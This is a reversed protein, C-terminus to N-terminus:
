KNKNIWSQLMLICWIQNELVNQGKLFQSWKKRVEKSNLFGQEQIRKKDLLNEAWERLPGRLFSGIPLNFGMKKNTVYENPLYKKLLKKLIWKRENDRIKYDTPLNICHEILNHDLYPTRVELGVSMSARDVKTLIDDPLYSKIDYYIFEETLNDFKINDPHILNQNSHNLLINEEKSFTRLLKYFELSNKADLSSLIKYIQNQHEANSKKFKLLQYLKLFIFKSKDNSITKRLSYPINKLFSWIKPGFLYRQYGGFMEDGGDGSLCVKVQKKALQSVMLTPIQSADAFPEDYVEPIKPIIEQIQNTEIYLHEHDTGLHKAIKNAKPAEDYHEDINGISFTKIKKESVSQMLAVIYSSDIGGSLFAGVPVDALMKLNVSNIILKEVNDLIEIQSLSSPSNKNKYFENVDWYCMPDSISEGNNSIKIFHAPPLKKIKKYITNPSPVFSYRIFQSLSTRDIDRDWMPHEELAKLESTFIFSDKIYGYYLPKEGIRDKCLFLEKKQKDWLGFAFMGSIKKLTKKLGLKEILTLLTETDSTGKWSIKYGAKELEKRLIKHNYIEGNFSILWQKNHSLMPQSGKDSLDLISLRRHAIGFNLNEDIMIGSGDPGRHSLSNNMKKLLNVDVKSKSLIGLIGCM